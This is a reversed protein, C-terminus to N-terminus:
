ESAPEVGAAEVFLKCNASVSPLYDQIAPEQEQRM